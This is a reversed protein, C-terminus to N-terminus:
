ERTINMSGEFTERYCSGQLVYIVDEIAGQALQEAQYKAIHMVMAEHFQPLRDDFIRGETTYKSLPLAAQLKTYLNQLSDAHLPLNHRYAMTTHKNSVNRTITLSPM